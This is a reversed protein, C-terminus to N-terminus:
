SHLGTWALDVRAYPRRRNHCARESDARRSAPLSERRTYSTSTCVACCIGPVEYAAIGIPRSLVGIGTLSVQVKRLRQHITGGGFSQVKMDDRSIQRCRLLNAADARIFSQNSGTDLMVRVTQRHGVDGEAVVQATQMLIRKTKSSTGQTTAAVVTADPGQEAVEEASQAVTVVSRSAGRECLLPHHPGGCRECRPGNAPCEAARHWLELCRFCAGARVLKERRESVTMFKAKRCKNTAHQYGCFLCIMVAAPRNVSGSVAAGSVAALASVFPVPIVSEGSRKALTELTHGHASLYKVANETLDAPAAWGREKLHVTLQRPCSNLFQETAILDFLEEYSADTGSLEIWRRLYMNIRCLFQSPSEDTEPSTNRLKQRYGEATLGYRELLAAKLDDFDCAEEESLRSYTDLAKGTLLASLQGAWNEKTWRNLRAHREFRKIYSDMDDKEEDFTPMKPGTPARRNSAEQDLSTESTCRLRAIELEHQREKEREKRGEEREKAEREKEREERREEREREKTKLLEARDMQENAYKLASEGSLGYKEALDLYDKLGALTAM